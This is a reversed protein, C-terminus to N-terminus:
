HLLLIGACGSIQRYEAALGSGQLLPLMKEAVMYIEDDDWKKGSQERCAALDEATNFAVDAIIIKGSPKVNGVLSQLFSAKGGDDLHHFAYASIIHDFTREKLEHPLGSNFDFLHFEGDPMAAKAKELMAASFDLGCIRAGEAYLSASFKGTGIGIDLIQVGRPDKILKRVEALVTSYGAFPYRGEKEADAISKDYAAAWENFGNKDLM